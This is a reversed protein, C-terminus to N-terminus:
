PPKFAHKVFNEMIEHFERISLPEDPSTSAGPKVQKTVPVVAIEPFTKATQQSLDHPIVIGHM